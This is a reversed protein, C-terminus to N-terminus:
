ILWMVNWDLELITPITGTQQTLCGSTICTGIINYLLVNVINNSVNLCGLGRVSHSALHLNSRTELLHEEDRAPHHVDGPALRDFRSAIIVSGALHTHQIINSVHSSESQLNKVHKYLHKLDMFFNTFIVLPVHMVTYQTEPATSKAGVVRQLCM